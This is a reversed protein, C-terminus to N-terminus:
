STADEEPIPIFETEQPVAPFQGAQWAKKAQKIRDSRSSVFNWWKERDGVPEGGIVMCRAETDASIKVTQATALVALRHQELPIGNLSLGTTVSYVAQQSYEAPLTFQAGADMRVDLYLMPSFTKVPSSQGQFHGVIVKMVVGPAEWTPLAEAAHHYFAPDCEEDAAPLAVWIQIGQIRSERAREADPTRESHVIGRGAIMWNVAGPRITQVSGLSDRHLIEGEFLYTVTALNIHPHPRVDMGKGAAFTAPGLHDFFIFPGVMPGADLGTVLQADNPLVRRVQFDGLDKTHPVLIQSVTHSTSDPM